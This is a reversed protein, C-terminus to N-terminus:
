RSQLMKDLSMMAKEATQTAKKVARKVEKPHKQAVYSGVAAVTAGAMLGMAAGKAMSETRKDM